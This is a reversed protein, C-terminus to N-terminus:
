FRCLPRGPLDRPCDCPNALNKFCHKVIRDELSHFTIVCIRGGPNLLSVIDRVATNLSNLENNVEIRIAQFVRKAPHQKRLERDSTFRAKAPMAKTIIDSLAVTSNVPRAAIVARAIAKSYREEGFAFFIDTLQRETYGNVVDYATIDDRDDMRMDLPADQMYSFGREPTDLQHSSVGLDLLAGDIAHIGMDSLLGRMQTFNGRVATFQGPSGASLKRNANEIAAGDRDIGILRGEPNLAQLILSSHGAGGLTGDAYLGNPRINLASIVEEPMVPVHVYPM